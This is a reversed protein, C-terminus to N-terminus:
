ASIRIACGEIRTAILDQVCAVLCRACCFRYRMGDADIHGLRERKSCRPEAMRQDGAPLLFAGPRRLRYGGIRCAPTIGDNQAFLDRGTIVEGDDDIICALADRMHCSALIEAGCCVDLAQELDQQAQGFRGGIVM